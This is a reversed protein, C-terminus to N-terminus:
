VRNAIADRFRKVGDVGDTVAITVLKRLFKTNVLRTKKFSPILVLFQNIDTFDGDDFFLRLDGDKLFTFDLDNWNLFQIFDDVVGLQGNIHAKITNNM